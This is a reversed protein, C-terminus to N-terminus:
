QEILAERVERASLNTYRRESKLEPDAQTKPDVIAAIDRALQPNRVETRKAGRAAFNELCRIGTQRERMAKIATQRGWGFREESGRANGNCLSFTVEAIFDRRDHGKLTRAAKVILRDQEQYTGDM